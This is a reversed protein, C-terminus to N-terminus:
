RRKGGTGGSTSGTDTPSTTTQCALLCANLADLSALVQQRYAEMSIDPSHPTTWRQEVPPLYNNKCTTPCDSSTTGPDGGAPKGAWAFPVPAALAIVIVLRLCRLHLKNM